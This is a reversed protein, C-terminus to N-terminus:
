GHVRLWGDGVVFDMWGDMWVRFSKRGFRGANGDMEVGDGIKRLGIVIDVNLSRFFFSFNPGKGNCRRFSM